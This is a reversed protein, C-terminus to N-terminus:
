DQLTENCYKSSGGLDASTGTETSSVSLGADSSCWARRSM